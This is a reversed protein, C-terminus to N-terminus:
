VLVEELLVSRWVLQFFTLFCEIYYFFLRCIYIFQIYTPRPPRPTVHEGWSGLNAPEFGATTSSSKWSTFIRLVLGEPPVKLQSDRTLNCARNFFRLCSFIPRQVFNLRCIWTRTIGLNPPACYIKFLDCYMQCCHGGMWYLVIIWILKVLETFTMVAYDTLYLFIQRRSM